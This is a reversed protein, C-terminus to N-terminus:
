DAADQIKEGGRAIDKGMGETTNCGVLAGSLAFMVTLLIFKKLM